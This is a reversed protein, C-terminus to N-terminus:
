ACQAFQTPLIMIKKLLALNMEVQCINGPSQLNYFFTRACLLPNQLCSRHPQLKVLIPWERSCQAVVTGELTQDRHM